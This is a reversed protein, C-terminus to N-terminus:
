FSTTAEILVLTWEIQGPIGANYSWDFTKLEVNYTSAGGMETTFLISHKPSTNSYQQGDIQSEIALIFANLKSVDGQNNGQVTINRVVGMIDYVITFNSDQSPYPIIELQSEKSMRISQIQPSGFTANGVAQLPITTFSPTTGSLSYTM